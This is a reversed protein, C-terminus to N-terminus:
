NHKKTHEDEQRIEIESGYRKCLKKLKKIFRSFRKTKPTIQASITNDTGGVIKSEIPVTFTFTLEMKKPLEAM